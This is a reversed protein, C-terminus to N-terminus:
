RGRSRKRTGKVIRSPDRPPKAGGEFLKTLRDAEANSMSKKRLVAITAGLVERTEPRSASLHETLWDLVEPYRAAFLAIQVPLDRRLLRLGQSREAARPSEDALRFAEDLRALVPGADPMADLMHRDALAELVLHAHLYGDMMASMAEIAASGGQTIWHRLAAVLGFRVIHRGDEAIEQLEAFASESGKGTLWREVLTMAVVISSFEDPALLLSRLVPDAKKGARALRAGVLRAFELNPRPSPMGSGRDLQDYLDRLVGTEVARVIAKETREGLTEPERTTGM